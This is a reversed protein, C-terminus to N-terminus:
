ASSFLGEVDMGGTYSVHFTAPSGIRKLYFQGNPKKQQAKELANEPHDGLYGKKTKVDIALFKDRHKGEYKHKLNKEYIQEGLKAIADMTLLETM